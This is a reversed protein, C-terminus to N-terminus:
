FKKSNLRFIFNKQIFFNLILFFIIGIFISLFDNNYNLLFPINLHKILYNSYYFSVFCLIFNTAMFKLYPVFLNSNFKFVIMKNIFFSINFTVLYSFFVSFFYDMKLLKIFISIIALGILSVFFGSALFKIFVM